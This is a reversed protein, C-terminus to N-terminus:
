AARAQSESLLHAASWSFVPLKYIKDIILDAMRICWDLAIAQSIYSRRLTIVQRNYVDLDVSRRRAKREERDVM